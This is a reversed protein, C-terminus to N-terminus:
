EVNVTVGNTGVFPWALGPDFGFAQMHITATGFLAPITLPLVASGNGPGSGSLPVIPISDYAIGSLRLTCEPVIEIAARSTGFGILAVSGGIFGDLRVVITEGPSPCGTVRLTPMSGDANLCPHGYSEVSGACTPATVDISVSAVNSDTKTDHAAYLFEDTGVYGAKARYTAVNGTGDFAVTGHLPQAVIRYVLPQPDTVSMTVQLPTDAPTSEVLDQAVPRGNSTHHEGDPGDHCDYCGVLNGREYTRTGFENSYSRTDQALSLVTGRDNSGHCARCNSLNSEAFDGHKGNAWAATSPHMGHPGSSFQNDELGTHCVSCETITGVHGQLQEAQLDDNQWRTPAIAHPPGHCASCQLGGHGDSFRYLSFGAAPTDADTAFLASAADRREGNLDFVTDYRIEGNNVTASGSHCNDCTPQDFWGVRGTEGVDSLGGHCSQCHMAFDGDAGIAHGMAGRLCQTQTGPHCSYCTERTVRDDLVTGTEDRVGAHLGHMAETAPSFGALGTGPLANTGHCAACLVPQGALAGQYLGAAGYGTTVLAADYTAEGLHRDHLKLINLHDDIVATPNWVWGGEPRAEPSGGSSHCRSCEMEASNPAVTVTSAIENGSSNRVVIRMLPYPNKALSDDYPTLPIGEAQFWDWTPDFHTPQPVNALGPMSNGALGTDPAPNAGYLAQVHDWFNTKGISTSNISGDPDAVAEYTITYAGAQTVLQGGVMVQANITNFPPLISFVSFDPDICHMGLDNWAIIRAPGSSDAPPPAVTGLYAGVLSALAFAPLAHRRTLPIRVM